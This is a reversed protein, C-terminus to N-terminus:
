ITKLDSFQKNIWILWCLSVLLIARQILGLGLNKENISLVYLSSTLLILLLFIFYYLRNKGRSKIMYGLMSLSIFAVMIVAFINHWLDQGISFPVSEDYSRVSLFTIPLFLIASSILFLDPWFIKKNEYFKLLYAFTFIAAFGLFGIRMIWRNEYGSTALKSITHNIVSYGKPAVIEAVIIFLVLWIISIIVLHNSKIKPKKIQISNM